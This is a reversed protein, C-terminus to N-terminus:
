FGYGIHLGLSLHIDEPDTALELVPGLHFDNLEIEYSTEIHLAFNIDSADGEFTIGPSVNLSLKEIPSYSVVLGITRHKHDDFIREYGLGLGFKTHPIKRIYHIHLGYSLVNEKLFYVPSHAIGIENNHHEHKDVHETTQAYTNVSFLATFFTVLVFARM